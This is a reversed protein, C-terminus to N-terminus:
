IVMICVSSMFRLGWLQLLLYGSACKLSSSMPLKVCSYQKSCKCGVALSNRSHHGLNLILTHQAPVDKDREACAYIDSHKPNRLHITWNTILYLFHQNKMARKFFTLYQIRQVM